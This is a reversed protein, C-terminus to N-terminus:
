APESAQKHTYHSAERKESPALSINLYNIPPTSLPHTQGFTKIEGKRNRIPKENKEMM